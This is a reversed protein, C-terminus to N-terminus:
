GGASLTKVLHNWFASWFRAPTRKSTNTMQCETPNQGAIVSVLAHVIASDSYIMLLTGSPVRKGALIRLNKVPCHREHWRREVAHSAQRWVMPLLGYLCWQVSAQVRLCRESGLEALIVTPRLYLNRRLAQMM